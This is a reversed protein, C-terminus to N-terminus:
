RTEERRSIQVQRSLQEPLQRVALEHNIDRLTGYLRRYVSSYLDDYRATWEANPEVVHQPQRLMAMAEGLDRYTGAAMGALLAAGLSSTETQDVVTISRGFVNAKIAVLLDNQSNGGIARIERAPEAGPLGEMGDAMLRSEFALGELVARYLDARNSQATLGVFAGRALTDPQPPPSFALHPLFMVGGSGIASAGAEALLTKHPMAQTFNSRFWEVAGGSANLGAGLYHWAHGAEIRGQIYGLRMLRADFVPNAVALMLLEATGMSDLMIGPRTVGAALSGCLHDHGGVAVAVRGKLGISDAVDPKVFGLRTGCAAIPPLLDPRINFTQMLEASWHGTRLDLMLTRSALSADTAAEGCLRFAIWDAINLILKTKQWAEPWADRMWLWKCLGLTPDIALGTIAFMAPTGVLAELREVSKQPRRDFWPLVPAVSAQGDGVLVCSEGVSATAIGAVRGPEDLGALLESLVAKVVRWIEEADILLNANHLSEFPSPRAVKGLARGTTDFALARISGTGVDVGIHIPRPV